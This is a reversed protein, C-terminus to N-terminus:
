WRKWWPKRIAEDVETTPNDEPEVPHSVVALLSEPIVIPVEALIAMAVADSPRMDIETLQGSHYLRLTAYYTAERLEKICAAQVSAGLASITNLWADQTLPRPCPLRKVRRDISTAEFIGIMISFSREGGVERLMIVQQEHIESIIIRCVELHVEPSTGSGGPPNRGFPPATVMGFMM